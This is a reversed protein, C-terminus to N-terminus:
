RRHNLLHRSAVQKGHRLIEGVMDLINKKPAPNIPESLVEPWLESILREHLVYNPEFKYKDEVSLMYEVLKRCNLPLFVEQWASDFKLCNMAFWKGMRQEWYFLSDINFNYYNDLTAAWKEFHHLAFPMDRMGLLPYNAIKEPSIKEDPFERHIHYPSRITESINGLVAVKQLKFHELNAQMNPIRTEHAFPINKKFIIEFEHNIKKPAIIVHHQLHFKSLLRSPILIDPHKRNLGTRQMSYYSINKKIDRCAAFILRSDWGASLGLALDFRNAAAKMIRSLLDTTKKVADDLDLRDAQKNPWYRCSKGSDLDLFHNPLLHKIELYPSSDGPWWYEKTKKQFENIFSVADQDMELHLIKGLLGPQSGVWLDGTTSTDTYVVQRLGNADHFMKLSHGDDVILAWRGVLSNTAEIVKDFSDLNKALTDIIAGNDAYPNYPDLIYGLLTISKSNIEKRYINLDPHASLHFKSNIQLRKWSPDINVQAPSLIFQNRYSLQTSGYNTGDRM